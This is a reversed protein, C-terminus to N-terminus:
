ASRLPHRASKAHSDWVEAMAERDDERTFEVVFPEYRTGPPAELRQSRWGCSCAVQIVRVPQSATDHPYRLERFEPGSAVVAVVYGEHGVADDRFWGM